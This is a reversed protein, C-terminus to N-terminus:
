TAWRLAIVSRDLSRLRGCSDKRQTCTQEGGFDEEQPGQWAVPNLWGPVM